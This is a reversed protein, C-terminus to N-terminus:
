RVAVGHERQSGKSSGRPGPVGAVITDATVIPGTNGKAGRAVTVGIAFRSPRRDHPRGLLEPRASRNLLRSSATWLRSRSTPV